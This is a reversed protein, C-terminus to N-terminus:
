PEPAVGSLHERGDHRRGSEPALTKIILDM